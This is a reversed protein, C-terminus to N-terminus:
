GNKAKEFIKWMGIIPIVVIVIIVMLEPEGLAFLLLSKM